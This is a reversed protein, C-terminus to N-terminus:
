ENDADMFQQCNKLTNIFREAVNSVTSNSANYINFPDEGEHHEESLYAVLCKIAKKSKVHAFWSIRAHRITKKENTIGNERVTDTIVVVKDGDHLLNYISAREDNIIVGSLSLGVEQHIAFAVDIATSGVPLEIKNGNRLRVHIYETENDEEVIDDIYHISGLRSGLNSVFYDDEKFFCLRFIDHRKDQVKIFRKGTKKDRGIDIITRQTVTIKDNFYEVFTKIFDDLEFNIDSDVIVNIDCLPTNRKNILKQDILADNGIISKINDYVEKVSYERKEIRIEIQKYQEYGRDFCWRDFDNAFWENLRLFFENSFEENCVILHDYASKIANYYNPNNTRWTLDEIIRVFYNLRFRKFLPLYDLETEDTKNHKKISPMKDITRLNHIRDAAKIYLAFIMDPSVSVAEVLKEFSKEDLQAKDNSYESRLYSQEYQEHVSTVADVYSAIKKDCRKEIDELTYKTDEVVDHLLAAAIIRSEVGVEALIMAVSVPHTLYPEGSKRCIWYHAEEAFNYAEQICMTDPVRKKNMQRLMKKFMNKCVRLMIFYNIEDETSRIDLPKGNQAEIEKREKDTLWRINNKVEKYAYDYYYRAKNKNSHYKESFASYSVRMKYCVCGLLLAIIDETFPKMYLCMTQALDIQHNFEEESKVVGELINIAAEVDERAKLSFVEAYDLITDIRKDQYNNM